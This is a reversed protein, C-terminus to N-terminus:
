LREQPTPSNPESPIAQSPSTREVWSVIRKKEVRGKREEELKERSIKLAEGMIEKTAKVCFALYDDKYPKEDLNEPLIEFFSLGWKQNDNNNSVIGLLCISLGDECIMGRKILNGYLSIPLEGNSRQIEELYDLSRDSSKNKRLTCNISGVVNMALGSSNNLLQEIEEQPLSQYVDNKYVRERFIDRYEQQKAKKLKSLREELTTKLIPKLKDSERKM